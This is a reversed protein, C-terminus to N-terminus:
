GLEAALPIADRGGAGIQSEEDFVLHHWEMQM